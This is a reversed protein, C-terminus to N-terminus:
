ILVIVWVYMCVYMCVYIYMCVYMCVYLTSAMHTLGIDFTGIVIIFSPDSSCM